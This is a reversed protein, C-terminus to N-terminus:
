DTETETVKSLLVRIEKSNDKNIYVLDPLGDGNIDSLFWAKGDWAIDHTRAGWCQAKANEMAAATAQSLIVWYSKTGKQNYIFDMKGDGNLDAWGQGSIGSEVENSRTLWKTDSAFAKQDAQSLLVWYEGVDDRKYVYDVCGDGNVDTLWQAKGDYGVNNARTGWSKEAEFIAGDVEAATAVKKGLMVCYDSTGEHNYVYDACGDGNVDALWQGNGDFGVQDARTGAQHDKLVLKDGADASTRKGFIV